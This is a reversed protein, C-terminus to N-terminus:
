QIEILELEIADGPPDEVWLREMKTPDYMGVLLRYEGPPLNHLLLRHTSAAQAGTEWLKTPYGHVPPRDDQVLVGEPGLLHVFVTFDRDPPALAEWYLSLDLAEGARDLTYGYLKIQEGLVAEIPNEPEAKLAPTKLMIHGTTFTKSQVNDVQVAAMLPAPRDPIEVPVRVPWRVAGWVPTLAPQTAEGVPRYVEPLTVQVHWTLRPDNRNEAEFRGSTLGNGTLDDFFWCPSITLNPTPYPNVSRSAPEGSALVVQGPLAGAHPQSLALPSLLEPLTNLNISPVGSLYLVINAHQLATLADEPHGQNLYFRTLALQGWFNQTISTPISITQSQGTQQYTDLKAWFGPELGVAGATTYAAEAAALDGLVENAHGYFVWVTAPAAPYDLAQRFADRAAIHEGAEMAVLGRVFHYLSRSLEDREVDAALTDLARAPDGGTLYMASLAQIDRPTRYAPAIHELVRRAARNSGRTQWIAEVIQRADYPSNFAEPLAQWATLVTDLQTENMAGIFPPKLLTRITAVDLHPLLLDLAEGTHELVGLVGALEARIIGSQPFTALLERIPPEADEFRGTEILARALGYRARHDHPNEQLAEEYLAVGAEWTIEDGTTQWMQTSANPTAILYTAIEDAKGALSSAPWGGPLHFIIYQPNEYFPTFHDPQLQAFLHAQSGREVVMYDPGLARLQETTYTDSWPRLYFTRILKNAIRLSDVKEHQRMNLYISELPPLMVAPTDGPLNHIVATTMDDMEPTVYAANERRRSLDFMEASALQYGTAALLAAPVLILAAPVWRYSSRLRESLWEAALWSGYALALGTPLLWLLREMLPPNIVNGVIAAIYPMYALFLPAATAAFLYRATRDHRVRVVMLLAILVGGFVLPPTIFGPHLIYAGTGSVTIHMYQDLPINWDFLNSQIFQRILQQALNWVLLGTVALLVLSALLLRHNIRRWAVRDWKVALTLLGYTGAIIVYLGLGVLHTGALGIVMVGLLAWPALRQWWRVARQSPPRELLYLTFALMPVAQLHLSYIHDTDLNELLRKGHAHELGPLYYLNIAEHAAQALTFLLGLLAVEARRTIEHNLAFFGLMALAFLPGFVVVQDLQYAELGAIQGILGRQYIWSQAQHRGATLPDMMVRNINVASRASQTYLLDFPKIELYFYAFNMGIYAVIAVVVVTYLLTIPTISPSSTQVPSRRWLLVLGVVQWAIHILLMTRLPLIQVQYSLIVPVALVSFAAVFGYVIRAAPNLREGPLCLHLLLQGPIIYLIVYALALSIVGPFPLTGGLALGLLILLNLGPIVIEWRPSRNQM